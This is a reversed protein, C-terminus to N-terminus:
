SPTTRLVWNRCSASSKGSSGTLRSIVDGRPGMRTSGAFREHPLRPVHIDHFSYFLFFPQDDDERMFDKAKATFVDAFDEDVWEANRGGAMFGIRSVGNVISDSHQRDAAVRLLDPSDVGTPRDGIKEGYSVAIPDNPDHDVVRRQEIFVTPVRDGTAPLLFSYDFGIDLPGPGIDGNWDIDGNGLGLHWKGVIATRYGADGLMSAVTPTGPRILLPADGPLIASDNRFGHRGTLLSFRSPTCTAATSHADTFQIGSAALRDIHPTDVATAGYVGVDGYGLDDAYLIVINPQHSVGNAPEAAPGNAPGGCGGVALLCIFASMRRRLCGQEPSQKM